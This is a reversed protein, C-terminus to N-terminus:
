QPISYYIADYNPERHYVNYNDLSTSLIEHYYRHVSTTELINGHVHILNLQINTKQRNITHLYVHLSQKRSLDVHFNGMAKSDIKIGMYLCEHISLDVHFNIEIWKYGQPADLSGHRDQAKSM